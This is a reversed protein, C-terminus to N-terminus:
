ASSAGQERLIARAKDMDGESQELAERCKSISISTEDRLQKIQETTIM